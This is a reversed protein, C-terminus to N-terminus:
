RIQINQNEVLQAGEIEIGENLAKKIDNKNIEYTVVERRYEGLKTEDIIEVATSKRTSITFTGAEIKQLDLLRMSALLSEKMREQANKCVKKKAQLRKIEADLAEEQSKYMAIAKCYGESKQQYNEKNMQMAAELEPTLEGGNEELMFNIDLQEQTLEYLNM